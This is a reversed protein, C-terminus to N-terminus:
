YNSMSSIQDIGASLRKHNFKPSHCEESRDALSLKKVIESEQKTAKLRMSNYPEISEKTDLRVQDSTDTGKTYLPSASKRLENKKIRQLHTIAEQHILADEQDETM